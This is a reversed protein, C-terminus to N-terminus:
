QTHYFHLKTSVIEKVHLKEDCSAIDTFKADSYNRSNKRELYTEFKIGHITTKSTCPMLFHGLKQSVRYKYAAVVVVVSCCHAIKSANILFAIWFM